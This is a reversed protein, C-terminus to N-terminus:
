SADCQRIDHYFLSNLLRIPLNIRETFCLNFSFGEVIKYYVAVITSVNIKTIM